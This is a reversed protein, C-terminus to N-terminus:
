IERSLGEEIKPYVDRSANASWYLDQHAYGALVHKHIGQHQGYPLERRLWEYMRDISDRHWVQNENGTILTVHREGFPVADLYATNADCAHWPAVWGRRQNQVCHMYTALPMRGFQWWLGGPFSEDHIAMMDDPRYPMGFMFCARRCFENNCDHPLPTRNWLQYANELVLPWPHRTGFGSDAVWPSIFFKRYDQANENLDWWVEELFRENGKVWDDIGSSFFLGLTTLVINGVQDKGSADLASRNGVAQAVLAGGICHGVVPIANTWNTQRKVQQVAEILDDQAEDLNFREPPLPDKTEDILVPALLGSSRWDLLWVDWGRDRLFGALGGAKGLDRPAGGPVLFTHNAASAGHVLLVPGKGKADGPVNRLGIRFLPEKTGVFYIREEWERAPDPCDIESM